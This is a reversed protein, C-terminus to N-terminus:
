GTRRKTRRTPARVPTAARPPRLAPPASPSLGQWRSVVGARAPAPDYLAELEELQAEDGGAPLDGRALEVAVFPDTAAVLTTWVDGAADLVVRWLRM